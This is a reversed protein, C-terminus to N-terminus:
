QKKWTNGAVHNEQDNSISGVIAKNNRDDIDDRM